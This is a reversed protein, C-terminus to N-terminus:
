CEEKIFNLLLQIPSGEKILVFVGGNEAHSIRLDEDLYTTLLWLQVRNAPYPFKLPPQDSIRKGVSTAADELPRLVGQLPKLNIKQGLFEMSEPIEIADTLQPTGIIGEVFKIQPCWM